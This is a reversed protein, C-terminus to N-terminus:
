FPHCLPSGLLTLNIKGYNRRSQKNDKHLQYRV